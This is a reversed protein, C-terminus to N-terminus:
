PKGVVEYYRSGRGCMRIFISNPDVLVDVVIGSGIEAVGVFLLFLGAGCVIPAGIRCARAVLPRIVAPAHPCPERINEAGGERHVDSRADRGPM